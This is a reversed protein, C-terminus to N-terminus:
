RTPIAKEQSRPSQLSLKGMSQAMTLLTPTCRWRRPARALPKTQHLQAHASLLVILM